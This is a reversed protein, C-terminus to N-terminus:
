ARPVSAADERAGVRFNGDFFHLIQFDFFVGALLGNSPLFRHRLRRLTRSGDIVMSSKRFTSRRTPMTNSAAATLIRCVGAGARRCRRAWVACCRPRCRRRRYVRLGPRVCLRSRRWGRGACVALCRIALCSRLRMARLRCDRTRALKRSSTGMPARRFYHHISISEWQWRSLSCNSASRSATISRARAAPTSVMTAMPM